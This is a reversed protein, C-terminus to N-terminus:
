KGGDVMDKIKINEKEVIVGIEIDKEIEDGKKMDMYKMNTEAEKEIEVEVEIEVEKMKGVEIKM